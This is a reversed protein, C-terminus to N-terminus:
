SRPQALPIPQHDARFANVHADPDPYGLAFGTILAYSEPIEFERDVPHRWTTLTGLGVTGLGHATASLMLTQLMIGADQASFPLMERHVFVFGVVPADFFELNRRQWFHQKERDAREVGVHAYYRKGNSVQRERLEGPYRKRTEFDAPPFEGELSKLWADVYAQKLRELRAGQAIALMYGRANSWSPCHRADELVQALLVPEVPKEMYARVSSRAKVVEAFDM